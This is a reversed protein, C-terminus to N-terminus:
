GKTSQCHGVKVLVSAAEMQHIRFVGADAIPRTMRRHRVQGLRWVTNDNGHCSLRNFGDDM